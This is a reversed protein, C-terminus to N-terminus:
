GLGTSSGPDPVVSGFGGTSNRRLGRFVSWRYTLSRFLSPERVTVKEIPLGGKYIEIGIKLEQYRCLIHSLDDRIRDSRVLVTQIGAEKLFKGSPMDQPVICWRNDFRGVQVSNSFDMRRSDLLFVPPADPSIELDDLFKGGAALLKTLPAVDIIMGLAKCGNFLPVPRWGRRALALGELIADDGPLDVIIATSKDLQAAWEGDPLPPLEHDRLDSEFMSAFLVPKTWATWSVGDPAWKKYVLLKLDDLM